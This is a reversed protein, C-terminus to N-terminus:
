ESGSSYREIHKIVQINKLKEIYERNSQVIKTFNIRSAYVLHYSRSRPHRRYHFCFVNLVDLLLYNERMFGKTDLM